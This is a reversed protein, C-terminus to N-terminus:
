ITLPSWEAQKDFLKDQMEWFKGQDRACEAAEAAKQALPHIQKLPFHKYVLLVKGQYEQMIQDVTPKARACFPCQFDSYELLTVTGSGEGKTAADTIEVKKPKPDFSGQEAAAQLLESYDKLDETSKGELEKDIIEKFAEFPYAGGLFRGNIFFGPTGQVGLGTGESVHADVIQKKSGTDVCKVLKNGDIKLEKAYTKLADTFKGGVAKAGTGGAELYKIKSWMSGLGFALLLLLALMVPGMKEWMSRNSQRPNSAPVNSKIETEDVIFEEIEDKPKRSIRKTAM